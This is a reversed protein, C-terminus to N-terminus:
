RAADWDVTPASFRRQEVTPTPESEGQQISEVVGSQEGLPEEVPAPAQQYSQSEQPPPQTEVTPFQSSYGYSPVYAEGKVFNQVTPMAKSQGSFVATKQQVM